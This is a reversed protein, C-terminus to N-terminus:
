NRRFGNLDGGRREKDQKDLRALLGFAERLERFTRTSLDIVRCIAECIERQEKTAM